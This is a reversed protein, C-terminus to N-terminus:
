LIIQFYTQFICTLGSLWTTTACSLQRGECFNLIIKIVLKICVCVNYLIYTHAQTIFVHGIIIHGEGCLGCKIGGSKGGTVLTHHTYYSTSVCASWPPNGTTSLRCQSPLCSWITICSVKSHLAHLENLIHALSFYVLIFRPQRQKNVGTCSHLSHM